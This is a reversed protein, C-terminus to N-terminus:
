VKQVKIVRISGNKDNISEIKQYLQTRECLQVVFEGQGLGVEFLLWGKVKMFKPAERILKKIINIGLMGGDFALVPEYQLIEEDMRSVKASTIYPPNCTILDTNEYFESNEFCSFLDGQRAEMASGLGLFEINERTLSVAEDSIDSAYVQAKPNYYAVALGVNGSGCCVDIVSVTSSNKGLEKSKEVALNGLIETEKRPILARKDTLMEVGLFSQRKTIHALPVKQLRQNIFQYLKETQSKNLEALPKKLSAGVSVPSGSAAHWLAKLTSEANEEPKDELLNLQEALYDLLEKYISM